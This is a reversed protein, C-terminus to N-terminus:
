RREEHGCVRHQDGDGTLLGTVNGAEAPDLADLARQDGFATLLQEVDHSSLGNGSRAAGRLRPRTGAQRPLLRFIIVFVNVTAARGAASQATRGPYDLDISRLGRRSVAAKKTNGLHLHSIVPSIGQTAPVASM